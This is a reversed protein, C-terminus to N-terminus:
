TSTNITVIPSAVHSPVIIPSVINIALVHPVFSFLLILYHHCSYIYYALTIHVLLSPQLFWFCTHCMVFWPTALYCVLM